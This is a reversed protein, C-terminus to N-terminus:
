KGMEGNFVSIFDCFDARSNNTEYISLMIFLQVWINKLNLYLLMTNQRVCVHVKQGLIFSGSIELGNFEGFPTGGSTM